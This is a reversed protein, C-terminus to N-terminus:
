RIGRETRFEAADGDLRQVVAALQADHMLEVAGVGLYLIALGAPLWGLGKRQPLAGRIGVALAALGLALPWITEVRESPSISAIAIPGASAHAALALVVGRAVANFSLPVLMAALWLLPAVFWARAGPDSAVGAFSAGLAILGAVVLAPRVGWPRRLLLVSIVIAVVAVGYMGEPGNRRELAAGLPLALWAWSARQIRDKLATGPIALSPISIALSCVLAILIAAGYPVYPADLVGEYDAVTGPFDYSSAKILNNATDVDVDPNAKKFAVLQDPSLKRPVDDTAGLARMALNRGVLCSIREPGTRMLIESFRLLDRRRPDNLPAAKLVAKSLRGLASFQPLLIRSRAEIRVLSGQYGYKNEIADQVFLAEELMGDDYRECRAARALAADAERPRDLAALLPWACSPYFANEPDKQEGEKVLPMLREAVQRMMSKAKKDALQSIVVSTFSRRIVFARIQDRKQPDDLVQKMRDLREIANPGRDDLVAVVNPDSIAEPLFLWEPVMGSEQAGTMQGYSRYGGNLYEVHSRVIWATKPILALAFLVAVAFARV